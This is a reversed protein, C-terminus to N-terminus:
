LNELNFDADEDPSPRQFQHADEGKDASKGFHWVLSILHSSGFDSLPLWTYSFDQNWILVSFGLSIGSMASLERTRETNYGTRFSFGFPTEYEVGTHASALGNNQKDGELAVTWSSDPHYAAGIRYVLP